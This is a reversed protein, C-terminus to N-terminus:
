EVDGPVDTDIGVIFVEAADAPAPAFRQAFREHLQGVGVPQAGNRAISRSAKRGRAIQVVARQIRPIPREVRSSRTFYPSSRLEYLGRPTAQRYSISAAREPMPTSAIRDKHHGSM